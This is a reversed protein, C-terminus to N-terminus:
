EKKLIRDNIKRAMEAAREWNGTFSNVFAEDAFERPSYGGLHAMLAEEDTLMTLIGAKKLDEYLGQTEAAFQKHALSNIRWPLPAWFEPPFLLQIKYELLYRQVEADDFAAKKKLGMRALLNAFRSPYVIELNHKEPHRAYETSPYVGLFQLPVSDPRVEKLFALTEERTEATDFPAPYIVSGVTFIGAAKSAAIVERIRELKVNKNMRDLVNQNGSEIGFFLSFLGSRKLYEFDEPHSDKIRAFATWNVDMGRAEIERAVGMLMRPPSSSGGLRFSSIGYKELADQFENVVRAASKSRPDAGSLFPHVCFYCVNECGRRDEVVLMKIKENGALAPYTEADYLPFPLDDMRNVRKGLSFVPFIGDKLYFINPVESLNRGLAAEALPLIAAEGDGIALADFDQTFDFIRDRFFKVQPGGAAIFLDPFRRRLYSVIRMPGSFGDGNWLKFGVFNADAERVAAAIEKAIKREESRRVVELGRALLKLKLFAMAQRAKDRRSPSKEGMTQEFSRLVDTLRKQFFPPVLRRMTGVTAYDMVKVQHGAGKLKGALSALGNDPM